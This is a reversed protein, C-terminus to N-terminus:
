VCTCVVFHVVCYIRSVCGCVCAGYVLCRRPLLDSRSRIYMPGIGKNTPTLPDMVLWYGLKPNFKVTLRFSRRHEQELWDFGKRHLVADAEELEPVVGLGRTSARRHAELHKQQNRRNFMSIGQDILAVPESARTLGMGGKDVGRQMVSHEGEVGSTTFLLFSLLRIATFFAWDELRAELKDLM